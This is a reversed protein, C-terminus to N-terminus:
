WKLTLILMLQSKYSYSEVHRKAIGQYEILPFVGIEFHVNEPRACVQVSTYYPLHGTHRIPIYSMQSIDPMKQHGERGIV